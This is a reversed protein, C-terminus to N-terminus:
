DQVADGLARASQFLRPERAEGLLREIELRLADDLKTGPASCQRDARVL